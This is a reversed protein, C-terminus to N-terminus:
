HTSIIPPYPKKPSRPTPFQKLLTNKANKQVDSRKQHAGGAKVMLGSFLVKPATSFNKMLKILGSTWKYQINVQLLLLQELLPTTVRISKGSCAQHAHEGLM